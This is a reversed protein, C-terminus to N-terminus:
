TPELARRVAALIEHPPSPKPLFSQGAELTLERGAIDASYGTTLIVKLAPSRERLRAALERGGVGDPMVMDTLLLDIEPGHEDWVRMADVGSEAPYVVYGQRELLRCTLRRLTHDDEVVLLTAREVPPPATTAPPAPEVASASSPLGIEFTTGRGVESDVRITGRHQQVIGFVTALGLGTGRGLGKTTFFPEFIRPLHEPLIGRGTDTVRLCIQSGAERTEILLTGGQPMADRANVALNLIVQDVMAADAQTVLPQPHLRLHLPVDERLLTRLMGALGTVAANLDLARTHLVQKRSFLMLQRTLGSARQAADGIDTLASQVDEPLDRYTGAMEVQMLIAALMNNFDHAVGGALRGVAELKQSERLSEEIGKRETIDEAVGAVRYVNGAVDRIPLGRDHVWRLSGDPRVVRYEEDYGGSAPIAAAAARLRERDEAHVADLRSEPSEYLSECTRGWVREYAPSAYLVRGSVFDTMWFVDRVNEALQRFREESAALAREARHGDARARLAQLGFALDDALEGLLAIEDTDFAEPERSFVSLAGLTRGGSLLPLGLAARYGHARADAWWPEAGSDRGHVVAPRGTRAAVDAPGRGVSPPGPAGEGGVEVVELTDNELFGVWALPYGGEDALSRSVGRLLEEETAARVLVQNASSITRLARNARRLSGAARGTESVSAALLLGTAAATAVYLQVELLRRTPSEDAFPAGQGASAGYIAAAALIVMATAVGRPGLRLAIWAILAVHLYAYAAFSTEGGLPFYIAWAALCWAALIAAAEAMHTWRAQWTPVGSRVWTVLLPTVLLLGLLESTWWTRHSVGFPAGLALAQTAAGVVASVATGLTAAAILALVEGVRDFKVAAGGVRRIVWVALAVEVLNAALCGLSVPWSYDTARLNSLLNAAAVAAAIEPWRARPQLLLIAVVLATAPWVPSAQAVPDFFLYGLQHAAFYTSAVVAM